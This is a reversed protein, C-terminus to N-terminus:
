FPLWRRVSDRLHRRTLLSSVRKGYRGESFESERWERELGPGEYLETVLGRILSDIKEEAMAGFVEHQIGLQFTYFRNRAMKVFHERDNSSLRDGLCGLRWIEQLSLREKERQPDFKRVPDTEMGTM